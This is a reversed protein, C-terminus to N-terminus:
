QVLVVVAVAAIQRVLLVLVMTVKDLRAQVAQMITLNQVAVQVALKDTVQQITPIVLVVAALLRSHHFYAIAETPVILVAQVHCHATVVLV